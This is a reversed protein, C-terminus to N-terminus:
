AERWELRASLFVTGDTVAASYLGLGNGPPLVIPTNAELVDIYPRNFADAVIGHLYVSGAPLVVGASAGKFLKASSAAGGMLKQYGDTSLVGPATTIRYFDIEENVSTCELRLRDIYVKKTGGNWIGVIVNNGVAGAQQRVTGMFAGGGETVADNNGIAIAATFINDVYEGTGIVLEVTLVSATTNTIEWSTAAEGVRMSANNLLLFEHGRDNRVKIQPTDTLVPAAVIKLIRIYTADARITQSGLAQLTIVFRQM